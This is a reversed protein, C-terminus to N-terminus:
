ALPRKRAMGPRRPFGDPTPLAKVYVHLTRRLAGEFPDVRRAGAPKLGVLGAARDGGRREAPEVAGKWAVLAGGIRLLPAAYEVLVALSDVARATVADYAEAGEGAGWEEARTNLARTNPLGAATALREIVECKRRAAEIM